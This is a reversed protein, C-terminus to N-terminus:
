DKARPELPGFFGVVELLRGDVDLKLFDTGEVVVAGLPSRLEWGYRAFEHHHDVQTSRHFTHSPFQALLTAAQDSLGAHGASELPPDVLRGSPHWIERIIRMRAEAAPECYARLYADVKAQINSAM